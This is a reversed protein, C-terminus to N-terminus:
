VCSRRKPKDSELVKSELWRFREIFMPNGSSSIRRIEFVGGRLEEYDNPDLNSHKVHYYEQKVRVKDGAKFIM